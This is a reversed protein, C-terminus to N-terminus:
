MFDGCGRTASCFSIESGINISGRCYRTSSSTQLHAAVLLKPVLESVCFITLPLSTFPFSFHHYCSSTKSSNNILLLRHNTGYSLFNASGFYRSVLAEQAASCFFQWCFCYSIFISKIKFMIKYHVTSWCHILFVNRDIPSLAEGKLFTESDM